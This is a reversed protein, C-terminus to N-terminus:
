EASQLGSITHYYKTSGLGIQQVIISAAKDAVALLADATQNKGDFFQGVTLDQRASVTGGAHRSPGEALKSNPWLSWKLGVMVEGMWADNARANVADVLSGDVVAEICVKLIFRANEKSCPYTRGVVNQINNQVEQDLARTSNRLDGSLSVEACIENRNLNPPLPRIKWANKQTAILNKENGETSPRSNPSEMTTDSTCDTVCNWNM